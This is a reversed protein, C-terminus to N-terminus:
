PEASVKFPQDRIFPFFPVARDVDGWSGSVCARRLVQRDRFRVCLELAVNPPPERSTGCGCTLAIYFRDPRPDVVGVVVVKKGPRMGGTIHGRFPVALNRHADRDSSCPSPKNEDTVGRQPIGWRRGLWCTSDLRLDPKIRCPQQSQARDCYESYIDPPSHSPRPSTITNTTDDVTFCCGHANANRRLHQRTTNTRIPEVDDLGGLTVAFQTDPELVRRAQTNVSVDPVMRQRRSWRELCGASVMFESRHPSISRLCTPDCYVTRLSNLALCSCPAVPPFPLATM